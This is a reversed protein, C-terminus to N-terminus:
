SAIRHGESGGVSVVESGPLLAGTWGERYLQVAHHLQLGAEALQRPSVGGLGEWRFRSM